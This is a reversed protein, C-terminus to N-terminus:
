REGGELTLLRHREPATYAGTLRARRWGGYFLPEDGAVVALLNGDGRRVRFRRSSADSV